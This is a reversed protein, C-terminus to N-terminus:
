RRPTTADWALMSLAPSTARLMLPTRDTLFSNRSLYFRSPAMYRVGGLQYSAPVRRRVSAVDADLQRVRPRFASDIGTLSWRVGRICPAMVGALPMRLFYGFVSHDNAGVVANTMAIVLALGNARWVLAVEHAAGKSRNYASLHRGDPRHTEDKM